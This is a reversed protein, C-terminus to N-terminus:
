MVSMFRLGAISRAQSSQTSWAIPMELLTLYASGAATCFARHSLHRAGPPPAESLPYRTAPFNLPM